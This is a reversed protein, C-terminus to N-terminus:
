PADEQQPSARLASRLNLALAATFAAALSLEPLPFSLPQNPALTPTVLWWREAWLGTLALLCVAALFPRSQKSWRTLLLVLPGLYVVALLALSVAPWPSTKLRPIVFRVEEPLNEYWIVILQSFMMYTTLLSFAVILKALDSRRRPDLQPLRALAALTWAALSAYLASILFYWPFLTSFWHPDLAMVLDLAVLSFAAAYALVLAAALGASPRPRRTYVVALGWFLLLAAADRSFLFNPALWAANHLHPEHLWPAWSERAAYLATFILLTFPAFRTAALAPRPLDPGLWRGRSLQVVAPWVVMGGALPAFFVFNILMARWARAPNPANAELAWGALGAALLLLWGASARLARPSTALDPSPM